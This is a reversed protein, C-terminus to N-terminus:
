ISLTIQLFIYILKRFIQYAGVVHEDMYGGWQWTPYEEMKGRLDIPM